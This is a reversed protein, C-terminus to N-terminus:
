WLLVSLVAIFFPVAILNSSKRISGSACALVAMLDALTSSYASAICSPADNGGM